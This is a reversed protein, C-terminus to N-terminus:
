FSFILHKLTQHHTKFEVLKIDNNINCIIYIYINIDSILCYVVYEMAIPSSSDEETVKFYDKLKGLIPLIQGATASKEASVCLISTYLIKM